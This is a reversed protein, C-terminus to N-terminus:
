LPVLAYALLSCGMISVPGEISARFESGINYPPEFLQYMEDSSVIDKFYYLM